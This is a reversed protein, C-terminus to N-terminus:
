KWFCSHYESDCNTDGFCYPVPHDESTNNLNFLGSIALPDTELRNEVENVFFEDYLEENVSTMETKKM